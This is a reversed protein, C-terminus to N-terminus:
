KRLFVYDASYAVTRFTGAAGCVGAAVGGVTNIRQITTVDGLAGGGEHAAVALRLWPIDTPAAGPVKATVEARVGGGDALRWRPGAFHQGVTKGDLLLTAIPERFTWVLAGGADAACEYIQGGEAHVKLVVTEGPAGIAPPLEDAEAAGPMMAALSTSVLLSPLCARM